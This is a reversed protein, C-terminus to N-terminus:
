CMVNEAQQWRLFLLIEFLSQLGQDCQLKIDWSTEVVVVFDIRERQECLCVDEHERGRTHVHVTSILGPLM